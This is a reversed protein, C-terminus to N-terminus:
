GLISIVTYILENQKLKCNIKLTEAVLKQSKKKTKLLNPLKEKDIILM